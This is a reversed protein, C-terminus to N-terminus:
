ENRSPSVPTSSESIQIQREFEDEFAKLALYVASTQERMVPELGKLNPAQKYIATHEVDWFLGILTSVIQYECPFEKSSGGYQGNYKFALSEGNEDKIPDPTWGSFQSRLLKDVETAIRPPFALVRVGVLDRLDLLTNIEPRDRDFVGGPNSRRLKDIASTCDKVRAKVILSEHHKLKRAIPLISYQVQTKLHEAVRTLEPLLTDYQERPQDEITRDAV